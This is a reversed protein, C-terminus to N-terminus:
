ADDCLVADVLTAVEDDFPADGTIAVVVTRDGAVSTATRTHYGLTDGDHSWYGEPACASPMWALGLGYRPAAPDDAIPVTTQMEALADDSLVEGAQLAAFFAALDDPTSVMAAAAGLGSPNVGTVDSAAADGPLLAYGHMPEGAIAPDDTPAVTDDMGVRALVHEAVADQWTAGTAAEIMMGVLVYGTDTYSWAEGPASSPPHAMALAVLEPATWTRSLLADIAARSTTAQLMALQDDVHNAIGATHQLLHRLTIADGDNGHGDVVGPLWSSVSDDLSLTGDEVLRLAAAAVLPKTTSAIRFRSSPTIPRERDRDALGAGAWARTDDIRVTAQVGVVGTAAIADVHLQLDVAESRDPDACSPLALLAFALRQM